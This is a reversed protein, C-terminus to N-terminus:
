KSLLNKRLKGGLTVQIRMLWARETNPSTRKREPEMPNSGQMCTSVIAGAGGREGCTVNEKEGAGYPELGSKLLKAVGPVEHANVAEDAAREGDDDGLGPLHKPKEATCLNVLTITRSEEGLDAQADAGHEEERPSRFEVGPLYLRTGLPDIM